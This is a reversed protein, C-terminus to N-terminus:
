LFALWSALLWIGCLACLKWFIRWIRVYIPSKHEVAPDEHIFMLPIAGVGIGGRHDAARV